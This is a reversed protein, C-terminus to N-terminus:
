FIYQKTHGQFGNRTARSNLNAANSEVGSGYGMLRKKYGDFTRVVITMRVYIISNLM